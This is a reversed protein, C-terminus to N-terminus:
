TAIILPLLRVLSGRMADVAARKDAQLTGRDFISVTLSSILSWSSSARDFLQDAKLSQQGVPARLQIKPYSTRNCWGSPARQRM